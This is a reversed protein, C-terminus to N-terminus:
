SAPSVRWGTSGRWTVPVALGGPQPSQYATMGLAARRGRNARPGLASRRFARRCNGV